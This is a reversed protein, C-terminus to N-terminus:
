SRARGAESHPHDGEARELAQARRDPMGLATTAASAALFNRRNM